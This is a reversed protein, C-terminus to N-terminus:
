KESSLKATEMRVIGSIGRTARQACCCPGGAPTLMGSPAVPGGAHTMLERDAAAAAVPAAVLAGVDPALLAAVAILPGGVPTVMGVPMRVCPEDFSCM